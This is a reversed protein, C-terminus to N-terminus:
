IWGKQRVYLASGVLIAISCVIQWLGITKTTRDPNVAQSTNWSAPTEAPAGGEGEWRAVDHHYYRAMGTVEVAGIRLLLQNPLISAAWESRVM